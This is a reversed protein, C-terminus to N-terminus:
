SEHHNKELIQITFLTKIAEDDDSTDQVLYVIFDTRKMHLAIHLVSNGDVDAAEILEPCSEALIKFSELSNYTVCAHLINRKDAIRRHRAAELAVPSKFLLDLIAVHGELALPNRGYKDLLVDLM